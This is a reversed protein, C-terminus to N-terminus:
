GGGGGGGSATVGTAMAKGYDPSGAACAGPTLGLYSGGWTGVTGTFWPQRELWEFTARGDAAENRFPTFDGGSGATGRCSQLVAQYGREAFLRGVMSLYGVRGYPSRLLVIPPRDIGVPYWRDALLVAGDPMPVPIDHEAAIHRSRRPGLRLFRGVLRSGLSM